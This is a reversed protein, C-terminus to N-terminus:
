RRHIKKMSFDDAVSATDKELFLRRILKWPSVGDRCALRRSWWKKRQTQLIVQACCYPRINSFLDYESNAWLIHFRRCAGFRPLLQDFCNCFSDLREACIRMHMQGTCRM